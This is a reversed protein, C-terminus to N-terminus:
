VILRVHRWSLAYFFSLDSDLATLKYGYSTTASSSTSGGSSTIREVVCAISSIGVAFVPFHIREMARAIAGVVLLAGSVALRGFLQPVSLEFM